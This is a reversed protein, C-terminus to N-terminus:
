LLSAFVSLCIKSTNLNLIMIRQILSCIYWSNVSMEHLFLLIYRATCSKIMHQWPKSFLSTCSRRFSHPCPSQAGGVKPLYILGIVILPYTPPPCIKRLSTLVFIKSVGAYKKHSLTHGIKFHRCNERWFM